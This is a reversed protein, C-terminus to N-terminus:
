ILDRERKIDELNPLEDKKSIRTKIGCEFPLSQDPAAQQPQPQPQPHATAPGGGGEMWAWSTAVDGMPALGISEDIFSFSSSSVAKACSFGIPEGSAPTSGSGGHGGGSGSAGSGGVGGGGAVGAATRAGGTLLGRNPLLLYDFVSRGFLLDKQPLIMLAPVSKIQPPCWHRDINLLKVRQDPDLREISSVLM